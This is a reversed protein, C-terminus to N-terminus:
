FRHGGGGGSSHSSSSSRSSRHSSSHSSSYSGGSSSSRSSSSSEVPSYVKYTELLSAQLETAKFSHKINRLIEQPKTKKPKFGWFTILFAIFFASILSVIANSIYKMPEIIKQGSLLSHMQNYANSACLYYNKSSAYKYVNDTIINAKDKTIVKYNEGDSFIYIVRNDMDILFLSGSAQGFKSHYYNRAYQETSVSNTNTSKFAINGYETLPEMASKLSDIEYDTLLNADDEIVIEYSNSINESALITSPILLLIFIFFTFKTLKNMKM